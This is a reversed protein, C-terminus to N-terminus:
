EHKFQIKLVQRGLLVFQWTICVTATESVKRCTATGFRLQSELVDMSKFLWEWVEHLEAWVYEYLQAPDADQVPLVYPPTPINVTDWTSDLTDALQRTLLGFTKALLSMSSGM